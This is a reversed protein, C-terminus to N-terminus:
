SIPHLEGSKIVQVPIIRQRSTSTKSFSDQFVFSGEELKLITVDAIMGQHLSGAVDDMGVAKAPKFTALGIVESISLGLHLFKSLTTALDFVPGNINYIHLDSSISGPFVGQSLAQEMTKFSFSGQGHGVDLIVGRAVAEKVCSFIKGNDDLIGNHRETFAHTIIDGGRLLPLLKELPSPGDGIHVMVPVNLQSAADVALKLAHIDSTSGLLEKSLRVKIGVVVDKHQRGCAVAMDVNCWQPNELEGIEEILMGMASINLFAKLSTKSVQLIHQQFGDFTSSGTSGADVATTVGKNICYRDADIGYHSFGKAVHVHIDVLGPVIILNSADIVSSTDNEPISKSLAAIKGNAIAVDMLDDISRSPDIVRGNKILLNYKM